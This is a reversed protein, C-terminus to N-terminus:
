VQHKMHSKPRAPLSRRQIDILVHFTKAKSQLRVDPVYNKWMSIPTGPKDLPGCHELIRTQRNQKWWGTSQVDEEGIAGLTYVTCKSEDQLRTNWEREGHGPYVRRSLGGGDLLTANANMGMEATAPPPISCRGVKGSRVWRWGWSRGRGLGRGYDAGRPLLGHGLCGGASGRDTDEAEGGPRQRRLAVAKMTLQLCCAASTRM